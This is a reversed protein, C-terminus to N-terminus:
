FGNPLLFGKLGITASFIGLLILFVDRIYKYKIKSHLKETAAV